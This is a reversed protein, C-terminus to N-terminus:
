GRCLSWKDVRFFQESLRSWSVVYGLWIFLAAGTIAGVIGFSWNRVMVSPDQNATWFVLVVAFPIVGWFISGAMERYKKERRMDFAHRVFAATLVGAIPILIILIGTGVVSLIGSQSGSDLPGMEIM